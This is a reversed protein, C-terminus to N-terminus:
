QVIVRKTSSTSNGILQVTYVGTSFKKSDITVNNTQGAISTRSVSEVLQGNAGFVNVNVL